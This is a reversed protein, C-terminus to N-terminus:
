VECNVSNYSEQPKGKFPLPTTQNGGTMANNKNNHRMLERGFGLSSGVM